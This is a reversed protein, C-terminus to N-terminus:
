SWVGDVARPVVVRCIEFLAAVVVGPWISGSRERLVYLGLSLTLVVVLTPIMQVALWPDKAVDGSLPLVYAVASFGIVPLAAWGFEVGFVRPGPGCAARSASYLVGRFLLETAIPQLVLIRLLTTPEFSRYPGAM